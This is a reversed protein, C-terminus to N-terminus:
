RIKDRIEKSGYPSRHGYREINSDAVKQKTEKRHMQHDVGYKKRHNRKRKKQIKPSKSPNDYGYREINTRKIRDQIEKSGYPSRHGYRELNTKEAKRRVKRNKRPNDVGYKDIWTQRRKELVEENMWHHPTGYKKMFTDTMRQQTLENNTSCKTSCFRAPITAHFRVRKGCEHCRFPVDEYFLIMYIFQNSPTACNYRFIRSQLKAIIAYVDPHRDRLWHKAEKNACKGFKKLYRKLFRKSPAHKKAYRRIFKTKQQVQKRRFAVKPVGSMEGERLLGSILKVFM